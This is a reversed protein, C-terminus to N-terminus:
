PTPDHRPVGGVPEGNTPDNFFPHDPAGGAHPAAEARAQVFAAPHPRGPKLAGILFEDGDALFAEVAAHADHVHEAAHADVDFALAGDRLGLHRDRLAGLNFADLAVHDAGPTEVVEQFLALALPSQHQAAEAIFLVTDVRDIGVGFQHEVALM